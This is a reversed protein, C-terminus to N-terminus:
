VLDVRISVRAVKAYSNAGLYSRIQALAANAILAADASSIQDTGLGAHQTGNLTWGEQAILVDYKKTGVSSADTVPFASTSSIGSFRVVSSM